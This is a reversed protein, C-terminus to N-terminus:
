DRRCVIRGTGRGTVAGIRVGTVGGEAFRVALAEANEAAVAVLLGGSTQADALIVKDVRGQGECWEVHPSVHALNDLSGGPAVDAAALDRVGDLVPVRDVELAVDVGSAVALEHLHGLLGFGTVDTCAHVGDTGRLAEAAAHNLRRMTEIGAAVHAPAALDRKAATALIGTGIPKTLFLVDGPAAGANALVEDPHVTGTVALGFKPEPDDVSHGGVIEIGAERAVEAAGALIRELVALDLRKTPFGVVSLAFRPVAGMAYIDSLSNAASIAGFDFPDDCIPTFFDVTQVIALDDGLRYVAADDATAIGVLVSPDATPPLSRLVTELEQPRMKCACGLGQTYRTLRVTGAEGVTAAPTDEHGRLREVADAVVGAAEDIERETTGRGVSFRVTGMAERVPVKMAQLVTSLDVGDAHCAAGASAAVRHGIEALLTAADVSAFCVSLTNPLGRDPDGNVRVPGLREELRVRLRDRLARTHRGTEELRAGALEAAKGLGVIELVNETGARRGAEHAAGHVLKPLARGSRIYLAGVGKPAYLKHGAVSLFDVGLEDVRVPIKGVSQAADTHVLIGRERALAAIEAIPQVSGVENNAHMVTILITEPTIARAVEEPDVHGSGDVPLYTVDFGEDALAQCPEIVAPHEIATTIVHRGRGRRASAVGKIVTNNSESGGSTFLVEEPRAGLLDAVQRRASEVAQRAAVGYPHSSSPNGFHRHLFPLMAEAVAPDIPTTANYDLYIPSEAM